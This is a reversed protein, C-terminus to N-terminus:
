VLSLSFGEHRGWLLPQRDLVCSSLAHNNLGSCHSAGPLYLLM